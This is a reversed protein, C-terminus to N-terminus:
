CSAGGPLFGVGQRDVQKLLAFTKEFAPLKLDQGRVEVIAGQLSGLGADVPVISQTKGRFIVFSLIKHRHVVLLEPDAILDLLQDREAAQVQPVIGLNDEHLSDVDDEAAVHEDVEVARRFLSYDLVKEAVEIEAAIEKQSSGLREHSEIVAKVQNM